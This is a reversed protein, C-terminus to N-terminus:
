GEEEGIATNLFDVFPRATKCLGAIYDVFGPATLQKEDLPTSVIFSKLKLYEIAPNDAEYGKPPRSLAFGESRDLDGFTERFKKGQLIKKFDGFSYDIEQRVKKLVDPMPMWVGSAFFSQGPEIHCYYGAFPSKKGGRAIYCSMNTKYPAKNQSFRIDRNIRFTCDKAQLPALSTDTDALVKLLDTTFAEVNSKASLYNARNADMWEKTNNAKLMKLFSVTSKQFM